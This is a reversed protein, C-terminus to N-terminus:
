YGSGGAVYFNHIKGATSPQSGARLALHVPHPPELPGSELFSVQLSILVVVFVFLFVTFGTSM